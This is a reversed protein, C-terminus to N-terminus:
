SFSRSAHHKKVQDNKMGTMEKVPYRYAFLTKGDRMVFTRPVNEYVQEFGMDALASPDIKANGGPLFVPEPSHILRLAESTYTSDKTTSDHSSQAIAPNAITGPLCSIILLTVTKGFTKNGQKM